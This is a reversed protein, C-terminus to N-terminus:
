RAGTLQPTGEGGRRLQGYGHWLWAERNPEHVSERHDSGRILNIDPICCFEAARQEGGGRLVLWDDDYVHRVGLEEVGGPQIYQNPRQFLGVVVARLEAQDNAAGRQVPDKIHGTHGAQEADVVVDLFCQVRRSPPSLWQAASHPRM